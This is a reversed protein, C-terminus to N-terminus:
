GLQFEPMTVIRYVLERVHPDELDTLKTLSSSQDQTIDGQLFLDVFFKSAASPTSRDHQKLVQAPNLKGGYEGKDALLSHALNARGLTTAANLWCRGGAWGETTPPHFLSQGLRALDNGLQITPVAGELGKVIGVAYEVPSKVRQRYAMSSFFLNSRLMTEVVRGVNYDEALMKTLRDALGTDPDASESIFWRYLEHILLRPSAPDDLVIRVIDGADWDGKKGLVTKQGADHEREFFRLDGRLVFWGTFARAAERLDEEGYRDPGLSLRALLQRPLNENPLAKRSAPADYGLFVAPDTMVGDLLDTYSGMAHRRLMQIHQAMLAADKVRDNSIGLRSHWFLTMKERLPFPTQIIRRLWWARLGESSGSRGAYEDLSRDFAAVDAAPRVLSDITAQPGDALASQLEQWNAGFAARRLLHAALPLNWPHDTAPEYAAWAWGPDLKGDRMPPPPVVTQSPTLSISLM